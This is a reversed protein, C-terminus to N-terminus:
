VGQGTIAAMQADQELKWRVNKAQRRTEQEHEVEAKRKKFSREFSITSWRIPNM